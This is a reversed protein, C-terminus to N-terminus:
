KICQYKCKICSNSDKSTDNEHCEQCLGSAAVKTIKYIAKLLCIYIKNTDKNSVVQSKVGNSSGSYFQDTSSGDATDYLNSQIILNDALKALVQNGYEDITNLFQFRQDLAGIDFQHRMAFKNAYHSLSIIEGLNNM